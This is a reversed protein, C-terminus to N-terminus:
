IASITQYSNTRSTQFFQRSALIASFRTNRFHYGLGTEFPNDFRM